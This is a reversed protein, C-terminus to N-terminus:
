HHSKTVQDILIKVTVHWISMHMCMSHPITNLAYEFYCTKVHTRLVCQIIMLMITPM